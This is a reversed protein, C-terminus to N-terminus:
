RLPPALLGDRLSAFLTTAILDATTGPNRRHGDLRLWFDLEGLAQLYDDSDPPGAALVKRALATAQNTITPGCKRAILSDPYESLLRIQLHVIATTLNLGTARAELLWPVAQDFIDAFRTVYQRAVRDRDAAARMAVLLDLPPSDHVDMSDVQGLGGPQAAAIAAYTLRCDDPTLRDLVTAIGDRLRTERPVTALPALLLVTGLNTNTAVLAQTALVADLATQGVSTGVARDMAPGIAAASVAFDGFTLDEFDAGRHVNGPKPATAELLCALTACQGITLAPCPLPSAPTQTM